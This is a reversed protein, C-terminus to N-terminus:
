ELQAGYNNDVSEFTGTSFDMNSFPNGAAKEYNGTEPIYSSATSFWKFSGANNEALGYAMNDKYDLTATITASIFKTTYHAQSYNTAWMINKAFSLSKVNATNFYGNPYGIFNVLSCNHVSIDVTPMDATAANVHVLTGHTVYDPTYIVCNDFVISGNEAINVGANFNMLRRAGGNSTVGKFEVRSDKFLVKGITASANNFYSMHVAGAGNLTLKSEDVIFKDSAVAGSAFNFVYASYSSSDFEVNKLIFGNGNGIAIPGSTMTVKVPTLSNRGILVLNTVTLKELTINAGEAPDLFYVGNATIATTETILKAGSTNKDYKVGDITVGDEWYDTNGRATRAEATGLESGVTTDYYAAVYIKYWTGSILSQVTTEGETNGETGTAFISEATPAPEESPLCVYKWGTADTTTVTFTLSTETTKATNVTVSNVAPTHLVLGTLAVRLKAITSLGNGAIAIISVDTRSDATARTEEPATVTLTHGSDAKATLSASWGEPAVVVTSAVGEMDVDFTLTQKQAFYVVDEDNDIFCKFGDVIPVDITTGNLLKVKLVDGEVAVDAFFKDQSTGQTANVPKGNPDLVQQYNVGEDYSVLWYGQDDVKFKPTVGPKGTTGAAGDKAVAKVPQNSSDLVRTFTAGSDTSVVWYGEDDVSMIPTLYGGESGQSLTLVEGNSLTVTYTGDVESVSYITAGQMLTQLAEVNGNLLDIQKEVAELRSKIDDIDKKLDDIDKNCASWFMATIAIVLYKWIKNM